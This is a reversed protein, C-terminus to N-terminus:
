DLKVALKIIKELQLLYPRKDKLVAAEAIQEKLMRQVLLETEMSPLVVMSISSFSQKLKAVDTDRGNLATEAVSSLGHKQYALLENAFQSADAFGVLHEKDGDYVLLCRVGQTAIGHKEIFSEDPFVKWGNRNISQKITERTVDSTHLYALLMGTVYHHRANITVSLCARTGPRNAVEGVWDAYGKWMSASGKGYALVKGMGARDPDDDISVLATGLKDLPASELKAAIGEVTIRTKIVNEKINKILIGRSEQLLQQQQRRSDDLAEQQQVENYSIVQQATVIACAAVAVMLIFSTKQLKAIAGIISGVLTLLTGTIGLVLLMNEQIFEM